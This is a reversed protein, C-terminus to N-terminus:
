RLNLIQLYPLAGLWKPFIDSLENNGLDIVELETCNIFSQSVKGELKNGDFKIVILQNGVSYTTQISRNISNNIVDLVWLGSMEVLCLPITGDLNNSGFDLLHLTKLNCITSTIGGSLNNHSLVLYLLDHQNLPSKPIPGQLQNQQLFVRSVTKSQISITHFIWPKLNHRAKTLPYFSLNERFTTIKIHYGGSSELYSWDLHTLSSFEGFKPLIYSGSLNNNSLYLKKLNSLQFLSSNSHFKGELKSCTLKLEIVKGITEDCYVGDWYCCYTSKNWSLNKPYSHILQATIDLYPDFADHNITFM